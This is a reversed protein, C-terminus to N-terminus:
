QTIAYQVACVIGNKKQVLFIKLKNFFDIIIETVNWNFQLTSRDLDMRCYQDEEEIKSLQTPMKPCIVGVKLVELNKEDAM